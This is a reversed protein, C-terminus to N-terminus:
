ALGSSPHASLCQAGSLMKQTVAHKWPEALSAKNEIINVAVNVAQECGQQCSHECVTANALNPKCSHLGIHLEDVTRNRKLAKCQTTHATHPVASEAHPPGALHLMSDFGVIGSAAAPGLVAQRQM